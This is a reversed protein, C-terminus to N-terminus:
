VVRVNGQELLLHHDPPAIYIRGREIKAGDVAHSAPLVGAHQLIEPLLSPAEAPIHLVVFVAAPFDRPFDRVLKTLAEVGGASAGVVIIDHKAM